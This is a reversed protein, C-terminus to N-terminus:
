EILFVAKEEFIWVHLYAVCAALAPAIIKTTMQKRKRRCGSRVWAMKYRKSGKM